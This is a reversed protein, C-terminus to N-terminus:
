QAEDRFFSLGNRLTGRVPSSWVQQGTHPQHLIEVATHNGLGGKGLGTDATLASDESM